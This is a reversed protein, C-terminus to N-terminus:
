IGHLQFAYEPARRGVDEPSRKSEYLINSCGRAGRRTEKERGARWRTCFSTVPWPRVYQAKGLMMQIIVPM